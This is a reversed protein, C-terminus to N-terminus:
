PLSLSREQRTRVEELIVRQVGPIRSVAQALEYMDSWHPVPGRLRVIGGQVEPRVERFREDRARLRDVARIQDPSARPPEPKVEPTITAERPLPPRLTVVVPPTVASQAQHQNQGPRNVLTSPHSPAPRTPLNLLPPNAPRSVTPEPNRAPEVRLENHVKTVGPVQGVREVALLAGAVTPISGWLTVEGGRVSVGLNLPALTENQYLAQRVFIALRADALSPALGAASL